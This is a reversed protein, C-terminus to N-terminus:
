PDRLTAARRRPEASGFNWAARSGTARGASSAERTAQFSESPLAAPLPATMRQAGKAIRQRCSSAASTQLVTTLAATVCQSDRQIQDATNTFRAM